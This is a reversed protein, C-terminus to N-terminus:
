YSNLVIFKTTYFQAGDSLWVLYVGEEFGEVNVHVLDNESRTNIEQIKQGYDDCVYGEVAVNNANFLKLTIKSNTSSVPNPYALINGLGSNSYFIRNYAVEYPYLQIKYYNVQNLAPQSHTFSRFENTGSTGCIGAYNYIELYSVSDLCHLISYGTCDPGPGINFSVIIGSELPSLNFDNIRQAKAFGLHLCCAAVIIKLLFKSMQSGFLLIEGM